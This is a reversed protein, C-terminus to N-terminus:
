QYGKRGRFRVRNDLQLLFSTSPSLFCYNVILVDDNFIKNNMLHQKSCTKEDMGDPLLMHMALEFNLSVLSRKCEFLLTRLQMCDESMLNDRFCESPLKKDKKVCDDNLICDRLDDRIEGCSRGDSTVVDDVDFVRPM